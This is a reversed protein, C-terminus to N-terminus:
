SLTERDQQKSSRRAAQTSEAGGHVNIYLRRELPVSLGGKGFTAGEQEQVRHASLRGTGSPTTGRGKCALGGLLQAVEAVEEGQCAAVAEPCVRGELGWICGGLVGWGSMRGVVGAAELAFSGLLQM